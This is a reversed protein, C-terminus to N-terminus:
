PAARILAVPQAQSTRRKGSSPEITIPSPKREIGVLTAPASPVSAIASAKTQPTAASILRSPSDGSARWWAQYGYVPLTFQQGHFAMGLLETDEMSADLDYLHMARLEPSLHENTAAEQLRRPDTAETATEPPPCPKGQEWGRLARFQPDLSMM